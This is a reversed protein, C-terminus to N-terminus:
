VEKEPLEKTLFMIREVPSQNWAVKKVEGAEAREMAMEEWERLKPAVASVVVVVVVKVEEAELGKSAVVVTSVVVVTEVAVEEEEEVVVPAEVMWSGIAKAEGESEAKPKFPEAWWSWANPWPLSM